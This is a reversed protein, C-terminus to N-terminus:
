ANTHGLAMTGSDQNDTILHVFSVCLTMGPTVSLQYIARQPGLGEDGICIYLGGDSLQVRSIVLNYEGHHPRRDVTFRPQFIDYVIGNTYVYYVPSTPTDQHRWDVDSNLSAECPLSVTEGVPSTV